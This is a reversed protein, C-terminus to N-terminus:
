RPPAPAGGAHLGPRTRSHTPRSDISSMRASRSAPKRAALTSQGRGRTPNWRPDPAAGPDEEGGGQERLFREFEAALDDGSPCRSGRRPSRARARADGRVREGARGRRGGRRALSRWRVIEDRLEGHGTPCASCTSSTACCRSRRRRTARRQRPLAARRRPALGSPHRRPRAAGAACRGTRHHGPVASAVLGLAAVLGDNTSSGVVHPSRTHPIAERPQASPSWSVAASSARSASSRTPSRRTACTRNSAPSCSWTTRGAPSARWASSTPRGARDPARRRRRARM